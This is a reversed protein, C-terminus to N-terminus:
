GSLMVMTKKRYILDARIPEGASFWREPDTKLFEDAFDPPCRWFNVVGGSGPWVDKVM